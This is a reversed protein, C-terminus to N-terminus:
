RRLRHRLQHDFGKSFARSAYNIPLRWTNYHRSGAHGLSLLPTLELGRINAGWNYRHWRDDYPHAHHNVSRACSTRANGAERRPEIRLSEPFPGDLWLRSKQQLAAKPFIREQVAAGYDRKVGKKFPASFAFALQGPHEAHYIVLDECQGSDRSQLDGSPVRHIGERDDGGVRVFKDSLVPWLRISTTM